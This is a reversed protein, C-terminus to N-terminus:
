NEPATTLNYYFRIGDTILIAQPGVFFKVQKITNDFKIAKIIEKFGLGVTVELIPDGLKVLTPVTRQFTDPIDRLKTKITCHFMGEKESFKYIEYGFAKADKLITDLAEISVEFGNKYTEGLFELKEKNFPKGPSDKFRQHSNVFEEGVQTFTLKSKNSGKGDTIIVKDNNSVMRVLPSEIRDCIKSLKELSPVQIKGEEHIKNLAEYNEIYMTSDPPGFFAFLNNNDTRIVVDDVIGDIKCRAIFNQLAQTKIEIDM